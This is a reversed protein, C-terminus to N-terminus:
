DNNNGSSSTSGSKQLVGRDILNHAPLRLAEGPRDSINPQRRLSVIVRDLNHVNNLGEDGIIIPRNNGGGVFVNDTPAPSPRLTPRSTPTHTPRNTPRHTPRPTPENTPKPKTPPPTPLLAPPLPRTPWPTPPATPKPRKTPKRTMKPKRTPKATPVVVTPVETPEQTPPRTPGDTPKLTPKETPKPTPRITPQHTPERTPSVSPGISVPPSPSPPGVPVFGPPPEFDCWDDYGFTECLCKAIGVLDGDPYYTDCYRKPLEECFDDPKDPIDQGNYTSCLCADYANPDNDADKDYYNACYYLNIKHCYQVDNYLVSDPEPLENDYLNCVCRDWASPYMITSNYDYEYGDYTCKDYFEGEPPFNDFEFNAPDDLKRRAKPKSPTEGFQHQQKQRQSANETNEPVCYWDGDTEGDESGSLSSLPVKACVEAKNSCALVGLDPHCPERQTEQHHNHIGLNENHIVGIGSSNDKEIHDYLLPAQQKQSPETAVQEPDEPISGKRQAVM